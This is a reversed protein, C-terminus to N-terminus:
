IQIAETKRQISYKPMGETHSKQLCATMEEEHLIELIEDVSKKPQTKRIESNKSFKGRLRRVTTQFYYKERLFIWALLEINRQFNELTIKMELNKPENGADIKRDEIQGIFTKKIKEWM